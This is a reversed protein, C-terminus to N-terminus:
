KKLEKLMDVFNDALLEATGEPYWRSDVEYCGHHFALKSALYSKSGNCHTVVFTTAYPAWEKIFMGNAGFMEYPACAFGLPGVRLAYIPMEGREPRSARSIIHGVAYISNQGIEGALKNCRPRDYTEHWIKQIEKAKEVLHGDTHDYPLDMDRRLTKVTMDGTVIRMCAMAKLVYEGLLQGYEAADATRVEKKDVSVGGHNGAAGQFHAFRAGTREEVFKRMDGIYDASIVRKDIGGTHCPHAQFNTLVVDKTGPRVFKIVQLLTDPQSTHGVIGSSWNGFNSGATSGDAMKYHRVWNMRETYTNGVYIAAEARDALAKRAAEKLGETYKERFAMMVEDTRYGAPASHTHTAAVLINEFPIGQEQAIAERTPTAMAEYCQTMDTTFLLVTNGDSGTFAICTAYLPDRVEESIRVPDNGYGALNIPGDPTIEVRGYGVLLKEM